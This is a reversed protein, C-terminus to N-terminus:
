QPTQVEDVIDSKIQRGVDGYKRRFRVVFTRLLFPHCQTRWSCGKMDPILSEPEELLVYAFSRLRMRLTM